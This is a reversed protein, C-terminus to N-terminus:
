PESKDMVKRILIPATDNLVMTEGTDPDQLLIYATATAEGQEFAAKGAHVQLNYPRPGESECDVPLPANASQTSNQVISVFAELVQWRDSCQVEISVTVANGGAGLSAGQGIDLTPVVEDTTTRASPMALSLGALLALCLSANGPM